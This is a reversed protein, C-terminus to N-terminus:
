LPLHCHCLWLPAASLILPLFPPWHLRSSLCTPAASPSHGTATRLSSAHETSYPQPFPFSGKALYCNSPFPPAPRGIPGSRRPIATHLAAIHVLSSPLPYGGISSTSAPASPTPPLAYPPPHDPTVRPSPWIREGMLPVCM